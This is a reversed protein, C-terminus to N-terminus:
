RPKRFNSSFYIKGPSLNKDRELAKDIQDGLIVMANSLKCAMEFPVDEKEMIEYVTKKMKMWFELKERLPSQLM